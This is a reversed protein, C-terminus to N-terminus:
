DHQRRARWNIAMLGLLVVLILVRLAAGVLDVSFDPSGTATLILALLCAGILTVAGWSAKIWLGVAAFLHAICFITLWTFGAVGLIAIPSKDGDGLGVLRAADGLGMLLTIIAVTRLIRTPLNNKFDM